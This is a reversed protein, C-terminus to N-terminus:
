GEYSVKCKLIKSNSVLKIYLGKIVGSYGCEYNFISRRDLNNIIYDRFAYEEGDPSTYLKLIVRRDPDDEPDIKFFLNFERAESNFIAENAENFEIDKVIM